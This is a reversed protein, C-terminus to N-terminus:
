PYDPYNFNVVGCGGRVCNRRLESWASWGHFGCICKAPRKMQGTVVSGLIHLVAVTSLGAFFVPSWIPWFVMAWSAGANSRQQIHSLYLVGIYFGLAWLSFSGIGLFVSHWM